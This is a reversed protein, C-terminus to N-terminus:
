PDGHSKADADFVCGQLFSSFSHFQRGRGTHRGMGHQVENRLDFGAVHPWNHYRRALMAWDEIWQDQCLSM